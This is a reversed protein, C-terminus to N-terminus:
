RPCRMRDSHKHRPARVAGRPAPFDNGAAAPAATFATGSLRMCPRFRGRNFAKAEGRSHPSGPGAYRAISRANYRQGPPRTGQNGPARLKLGTPLLTRGREAVHGPVRRWNSDRKEWCSRGRGGWEPTSNMSPFWPTDRPTDSSSASGPAARSTLRTARPAPGQRTREPEQTEFSSGRCIAPRRIPPGM